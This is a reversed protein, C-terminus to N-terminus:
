GYVYLEFKTPKNEHITIRTMKILNDPSSPVTCYSNGSVNLYFNYRLNMESRKASCDFASLKTQNVRDNSLIGFQNESLILESALNGEYFLEDLNNKTQPNYNVAYVFLIIVGMMFIFSAIILDLSWVQGKNSRFPRIM